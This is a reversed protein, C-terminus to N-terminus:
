STSIGPWWFPITGTATAPLKFNQEIARLQTGNADTLYFSAVGDPEDRALM